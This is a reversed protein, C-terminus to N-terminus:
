IMEKMVKCLANVIPMNTVDDIVTVYFNHIFVTPGGPPIPVYVETTYTWNNVAPGRTVGGFKDDISVYWYYTTNYALTPITITAISGSTVATDTGILTTNGWYFSVDMTQSEPDTVVVRLFGIYAPVNPATNRPTTDTGGDPVDPPQNASTTFQYWERTWDIGDTANVYVKYTTSFSLGSISLSKTGNSAGTASNSQGNSCAISWNFVDGNLDNIPIGWTLSLPRGTSGNTPSPTGFTPPNNPFPVLADDSQFSISYLNATENYGWASYWVHDGSSLAGHDTSTGTNNYLLTGSTPTAPAPGAGTNYRILVRDDGTFKAWTLHINSTNTAVANFSGTSEPHVYVTQTYKTTGPDNGGLATGGATITFTAVGCGIANWKTNFATANTNNVPPTSGPADIAWVWSKAWGTSDHVDTARSFVLTYDDDFITGKSNAVSLLSNTLIGAPLYTLNDVAITDIESSIDGYIYSYFTTGITVDKIPETFGMYNPGAFPEYEDDATILVTMSTLLMM